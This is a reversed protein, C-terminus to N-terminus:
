WSKIEKTCLTFDLCFFLFLYVTKNYKVLSFNIQVYCIQWTETKMKSNNDNKSTLLSAGNAVTDIKVLSVENKKKQNCDYEWTFMEESFMFWVMLIEFFETFSQIFTNKNFNCGLGLILNSTQHIIKNTSTAATVNWRLSWLFFM